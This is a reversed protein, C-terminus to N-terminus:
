KFVSELEKVQQSRKINLDLSKNYEVYINPNFNNLREVSKNYYELNNEFGIFNRNLERSAIATQGGGMFNDLILDNENTYTM